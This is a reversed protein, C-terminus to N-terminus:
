YAYGCMDLIKYSILSNYSFDTLSENKAPARKQLIISTKPAFLAGSYEITIIIAGSSFISGLFGFCSERRHNTANRSSLSKTSPTFLKYIIYRNLLGVYLQKKKFIKSKVRGRVFFFSFNDFTICM